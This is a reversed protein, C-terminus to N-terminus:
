SLADILAVLFTARLGDVLAPGPREVGDEVVTRSGQVAEEAYGRMRAVAAEDLEAQRHEGTSVEQLRSLAVVSPLDLARRIDELCATRARARELTPPTRDQCLYLGLLILGDRPLSRRQSAEAQRKRTSM